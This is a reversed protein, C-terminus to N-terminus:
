ELVDEDEDRHRTHFGIADALRDANAKRWEDDVFVDHPPTKREKAVADSVSLARVYKRVIYM